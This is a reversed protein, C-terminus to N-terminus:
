GKSSSVEAFNRSAPKVYVHRLKPRHPENRGRRPRLEICRLNCKDLLLGSRKLRGETTMVTGASCCM